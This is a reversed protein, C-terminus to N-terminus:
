DVNVGRDRLLGAVRAELEALSGDNSIVVDVIATREANSIQSAIRTRADVESFGRHQILRAVAIKPDVETAWVEAMRFLKRHEPRFLPVAVAYHRDQCDDLRRMIEVGIAGHTISNLRRLASPNPFAIGALFARDISGDDALVGKGFADVLSKWAAKGPEVVERAVVDADIVEIGYRELLGTVATKGSGIGGAIGLQLVNTRYDTNSIVLECVPYIEVTCVRLTWIGM